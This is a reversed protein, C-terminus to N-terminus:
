KRRPRRKPRPLVLSTEDTVGYGNLEERLTNMRETAALARDRDQAAVAITLAELLILVTAQSTFTGPRSMPASLVVDVKDRLAEGLTDTLLIV